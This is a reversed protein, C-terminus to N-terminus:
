LQRRGTQRGASPRSGSPRASGPARTHKEKGPDHGRRQPDGPAPGPV